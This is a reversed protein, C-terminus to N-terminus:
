WTQSLLKPNIQTQRLYLLSSSALKDLQLKNKQFESNALNSLDEDETKVEENSTDSFDAGSGGLLRALQTTLIKLQM